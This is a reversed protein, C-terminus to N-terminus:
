KQFIRTIPQLVKILEIFFQKNKYSQVTKAKAFSYAVLDAIQLLPPKSETRTERARIIEDSSDSYTTIRSPIIINHNDNNVKAKKKNNWRMRSSSDSDPYFDYESKQKSRTIDIMCANKLMHIMEKEGYYIQQKNGNGFDIEEEKPFSRKDAYSCIIDISEISKAIHNYLQYVKEETITFPLKERQHPHFLERCHLRYKEPIGVKKKVALIFEELSPILKTPLIFIAYCVINNNISDDGYISVHNEKKNAM